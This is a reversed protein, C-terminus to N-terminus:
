TSLTLTAHQVWAEAFRDAEIDGPTHGILANLIPYYTLSALLVAATADPDAVHVTGRESQTRLWRAFEDYVNARVESWLIELLEPFDDLDRLMVRLAQHDRQMGAWMAQATMRLASTVDDPLQAAFSQSGERMTTIHTHIIAALLDRKSRFHKYLAGSGAALGCALQIDAVSTAAYGQTAFLRAAETVIRGRAAGPQRKM